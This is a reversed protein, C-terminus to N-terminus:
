SMLCKRAEEQNAYMQRKMEARVEEVDFLRKNGNLLFPYRGVKAGTRLEHTSIGLEKAAEKVNLLM